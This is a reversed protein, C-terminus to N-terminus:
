AVGGRQLKRWEVLGHCPKRSQCGSQVKCFSERQEGVLGCTGPRELGMSRAGQKTYPWHGLLSKLSCDPVGHTWSSEAVAM